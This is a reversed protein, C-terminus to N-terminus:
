SGRPLVEHIGLQCAAPDARRQVLQLRHEHCPQQGLPAPTLPHEREVAVSPRTLREGREVRQTTHQAVLQPGVGAWLQAVQVRPHEAM